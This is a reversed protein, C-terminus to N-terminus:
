FLNFIDKCTIFLAFAMLITIGIMNVMQEFEKKVPKRFILEYFHFVLHGGDLAPFPLLNFIGLNM